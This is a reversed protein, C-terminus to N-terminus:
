ADEDHDTSELAEIREHHDAATHELQDLRHRVREFVFGVCATMLGFFGTILAELVRAAYVSRGPRDVDPETM